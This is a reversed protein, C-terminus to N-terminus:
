DTVAHSLEHCNMVRGRVNCPRCTLKGVRGPKGTTPWMQICVLLMYTFSFSLFSSPLTLALTTMYRGALIYLLAHSDKPDLGVLATYGLGSFWRGEVSEESGVYWVVKYGRGRYGSIAVLSV